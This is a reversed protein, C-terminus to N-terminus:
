LPCGRRSPWLAEPSLLLGLLLFVIPGTVWLHELRAAVLSYVVILGLFILLGTTVMPVVVPGRVPRQAIQWTTM